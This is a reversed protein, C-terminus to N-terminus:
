FGLDYGLDPPDIDRGHDYSMSREPAFSRESEPYLERVVARRETDMEHDIGSIQAGLERFRGPVEPHEDFFRSREADREALARVDRDAGDLAEALRRDERALLPAVKEQAARERLAWEDMQHRADRRIKRPRDKDGATLENSFRQRRVM